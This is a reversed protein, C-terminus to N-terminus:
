SAPESFTPAATVRREILDLAVSVSHLEQRRFGAPVAPRRGRYCQACLGDAVHARAPHCRASNDPPTVHRATM